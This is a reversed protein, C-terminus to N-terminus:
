PAVGKTTMSPGSPRRGWSAGAERPHGDGPLGDLVTQLAESDIDAVMVKAGAAAAEAAASLGAAGGGIVLIETSLTKM